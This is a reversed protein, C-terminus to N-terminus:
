FVSGDASLFGKSHRSISFINTIALRITFPKLYAIQQIADNSKQLSSSQSIYGM